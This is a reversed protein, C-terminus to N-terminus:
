SNQQQQQKAQKNKPPNYKKIWMFFTGEERAKHKGWMRQELDYM